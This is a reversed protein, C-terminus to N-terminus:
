NEINQKSARTSYEEDTEWSQKPTNPFMELWRKDDVNRGQCTPPVLTKGNIYTGM